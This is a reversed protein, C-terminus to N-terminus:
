NKAILAILNVIIVIGWIVGAIIWLRRTAADCKAFQELMKQKKNAWYNEVEKEVTSFFMEPSELMPVETNTRDLIGFFDAYSEEKSMMKPFPPFFLDRIKVFFKKM